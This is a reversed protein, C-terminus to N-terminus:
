QKANIAKRIEKWDGNEWAQRYTPNEADFKKWNQILQIYKTRLQTIESNKVSVTGSTHSIESIAHLFNKVQLYSMGYIADSHVCENFYVVDEYIDAVNFNRELYRKLFSMGKYWQHNVTYKWESENSIDKSLWELGKQIDSSAAPTQMSQINISLICLAMLSIQKM